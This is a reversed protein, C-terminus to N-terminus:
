LNGVTRAVQGRAKAMAAITDHTSEEKDEDQAPAQRVNAPKVQNASLSEKRELKRQTDAQPTAQAKLARVYEGAEKMRDYGAPKGKLALFEERDLVHDRWKPDDMVDKYDSLFKQKADQFAFRNEVLKVVDAPNVSPRRLKQIVKVAEEESGMQLARALARDDEEVTESADKVPPKKAIEEAEKRLRAAEQFKQDASKAKQVWEAVEEETLEVEEGNVKFKRKAPPQVEEKAVFRGHEDRPRDEEEIEVTKDHDADAVEAYDPDAARKEDMEAYLESRRDTKPNNKGEVEKEEDSM